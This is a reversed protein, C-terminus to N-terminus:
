QKEHCIPPFGECFMLPHIHPFASAKRFTGRPVQLRSNDDGNVLGQLPSSSSLFYWLYESQVDIIFIICTSVLFTFQKWVLSRIFFQEYTVTLTLFFFVRFIALVNPPTNKPPCFSEINNSSGLDHPFVMCVCKQRILRPIILDLFTTDNTGPLLMQFSWRFLTQISQRVIDQSSFVLGHGGFRERQRNRCLTRLNLDPADESTLAWKAVLRLIGVFPHRTPFFHDPVRKGLYSGKPLRISRILTTSQYLFHALRVVM